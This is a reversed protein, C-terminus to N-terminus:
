PPPSHGEVLTINETTFNVGNSVIKFKVSFNKISSCRIGGHTSFQKANFVREFQKNKLSHLVDILISPHDVDYIKPAIPDLLGSFSIDNAEDPTSFTSDQKTISQSNQLVGNVIPTIKLIDEVDRKILVNSNFNVPLVEGAVEFAYGIRKGDGFDMTRKGLNSKFAVNDAYCSEFYPKVSNDNSIMGQSNLTINVWLVTLSNKTYVVQGDCTATIEADNM